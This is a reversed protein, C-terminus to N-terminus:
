FKAQAQADQIKRLKRSRFAFPLMAIFTFLCGLAFFFLAWLVKNLSIDGGLLFNFSITSDNNAITFALLYAFILLSLIWGIVKFMRKEQLTSNLTLDALILTNLVGVVQQELEFYCVVHM